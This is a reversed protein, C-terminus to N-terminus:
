CHARKELTVVAVRGAPMPRGCSCFGGKLCRAALHRRQKAAMGVLDNERAAAAFCIIKRELPCEERKAVLAIVDDGRADLMRRDDLWAMKEFAEACTHGIQGNVAGAAKIGIIEAL